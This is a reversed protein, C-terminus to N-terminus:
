RKLSSAYDFIAKEQGWEVFQPKIERLSRLAEAAGIGDRKILHAALVCGTRGEGALCHVVVARGRANAEQIYSAGEDLAELGPAAHDVMPVHRVELNSGELWESPIPNKTLTLIADLGTSALWQVQGRSSPYGSGALRGKEVWVFGTPQDIVKARLKRLFSGGAGM